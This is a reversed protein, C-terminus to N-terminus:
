SEYKQKLHSQKRNAKNKNKNKPKTKKSNKPYQYNKFFLPHCISSSLLEPKLSYKITSTAKKITIIEYRIVMFGWSIKLAIDSYSPKITVM